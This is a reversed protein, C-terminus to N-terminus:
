QSNYFEFMIQFAEPTLKINKQDAIAPGNGSFFLWDPAQNMVKIKNFSESFGAILVADNYNVENSMLDTEPNDFSVGTLREPDFVSFLFKYKKDYSASGCFFGRSCSWIRDIHSFIFSWKGQDQKKCDSLYKVCYWFAKQHPIHKIHVIPCGTVSYWCKRLKQWPIYRDFMLHIHVMYNQTVEIVYFYEPKQHHYTLRKFFLDIDHKVRMACATPTYLRTSYTLTGFTFKKSYNLTEVKARLKKFYKKRGEPLWPTAPVPRFIFIKHDEINELFLGLKKYNHRLKKQYVPLTYILRNRHM